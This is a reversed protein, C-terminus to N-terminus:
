YISMQCVSFDFLVTINEITCPYSFILWTKIYIYSIVTLFRLHVLFHSKPLLISVQICTLKKDDFTLRRTENSPQQLMRVWWPSYYKNKVNIVIVKKFNTKKWMQGYLKSCRIKLEYWNQFDWSLSLCSEERKQMMLTYSM